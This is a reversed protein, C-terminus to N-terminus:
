YLTTNVKTAIVMEERIGRQEMWEGIFAESSGNQSFLFWIDAVTTRITPTRLLVIYVHWVVPLLKSAM